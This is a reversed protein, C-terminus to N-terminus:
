QTCSQAKLTGDDQSVFTMTYVGLLDPHISVFQAPLSRAIKEYVSREDATVDWPVGLSLAFGDSKVYEFPRTQGTDLEPPLLAMRAPDPDDLPYLELDSLVPTDNILVFDAHNYVLGPYPNNYGFARLPGENPFGAGIIPGCPAVSISYPLSNGRDGSFQPIGEKDDAYWLNIVAHPDAELVRRTTPFTVISKLMSDLNARDLKWYTVQTDSV